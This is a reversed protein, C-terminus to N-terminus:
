QMNININEETGWDEVTADFGGSVGGEPKVDPLVEEWYLELRLDLKKEDEVSRIFKDGVQFHCEVTTKNDVLLLSLNMENENARKRHTPSLGFCTIEASIYGRIPDSQDVTLSWNEILHTVLRDTPKQTALLFGEALGNLSARASRLNHIGKLHVKVGITYIINQPVFSAITVDSKQYGQNMSIYEGSIDLMESTVEINEEADVAIWEPNVAVEEKSQSHYWRSEKKKCYVEATEYKEMGRFSVSAYESPTQNYVITNYKGAALDVYVHSIRNSYQVLTEGNGAAVEMPYVMVTMGTPIEQFFESWDVNMRVKATHPHHFCLEKHDCANFLLFLEVLVIWHAIKKM